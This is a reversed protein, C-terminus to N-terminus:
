AEGFFVVDGVVTSSLSLSVRLQAPSINANGSAGNLVAATLDVVRKEAESVLMDLKQRRCGGHQLTVRRFLAVSPTWSDCLEAPSPPWKCATQASRRLQKGQVLRAVEGRTHVRRTKKVIPSERAGHLLLMKAMPINNTMLAIDLTSLNEANLSNVDVSNSELVAKVADLDQQEVAEFLAHIDYIVKKEKDSKRRESKTSSDVDNASSGKKRQAALLARNDKSLIPSGTQGDKTLFAPASPSATMSPMVDMREEEASFIKLSRGDGFAKWDISQNIEVLFALTPGVFDPCPFTASKALVGIQAVFGTGRG